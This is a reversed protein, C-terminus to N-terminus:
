HIKIYETSVLHANPNKLTVSQRIAKIGWRIFLFKHKEVHIVQILTDRSNYHLSVSDEEINGKISTWTDSWDFEKVKTIRGSDLRIENRIPVNISLATETTTKGIAIADKPRIKMNHLERLIKSRSKKVESLNLELQEISLVLMNNRTKYKEISDRLLVRQNTEIRTRENNAM